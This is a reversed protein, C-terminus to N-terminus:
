IIQVLYKNDADIILKWKSFGSNVMWLLSKDKLSIKKLGCIITLYKINLMKHIFHNQNYSGQTSLTNIHPLGSSSTERKNARQNNPSLPYV